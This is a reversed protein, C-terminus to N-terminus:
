PTPNKLWRDFFQYAAHRAYDPFDHETSGMLYLFADEAGLMAYLKKLDAMAQSIEQWHPFIRDQQGSWYFAPTPAALACIEHFEFPVLGQDIDATLRPIHSFWDRLGWRNPRPDGAFTAFGCSSVIARVRQDAGALFFANYGGLSHGIAGIRKSDVNELSCLLDVGYMHDILMKGVATWEPHKEYFPATQFADTYIREGATITDPVLVVYGRRVLELGYQRNERGEPTGVDIKGEANTPHFALIAPYLTDGQGAARYGAPLLLFATVHDGYASTYRLHIRDHDELPTESITEWEVATRQPLTGIYEMWIELIAQRKEEWQEKTSVHDLLSPIGTSNLKSLLYSM